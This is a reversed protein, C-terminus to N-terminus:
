GSPPAIVWGDGVRLVQLWMRTRTGGTFHLEGEVVRWGAQERDNADLLPGVRQVEIRQLSQLTALYPGDLEPGALHGMIAVGLGEVVYQADDVLGITRQEARNRADFFPLAVAPDRTALAALADRLWPALDPPLAAGQAIVVAARSPADAVPAPRPAPAVQAPQPAHACAGLGLSIALILTSEHLRM